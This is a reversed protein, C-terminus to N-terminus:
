ANTALEAVDIYRSVSFINIQHMRRHWIIRRDYVTKRPFKKARKEERGGARRSSRSTLDVVSTRTDYIACIADFSRHLGTARGTGEVARICRGPRLLRLWMRHACNIDPRIESRENNGPTWRHTHTDTIGTPVSRRRTHAHGRHYPPIRAYQYRSGYVVPCWLRGHM